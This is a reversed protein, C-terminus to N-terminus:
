FALDDGDERRQAQVYRAIQDLEDPLWFDPPKQLYQLGAKEAAERRQPAAGMADWEAKGNKYGDRYAALAALIADSGPPAVGAKPVGMVSVPYREPLGRRGDDYGERMWAQAVARGASASWLCPLSEPIEVPAKGGQAPPPVNEIRPREEGLERLM